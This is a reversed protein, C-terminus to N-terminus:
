CDLKKKYQFDLLELYLDMLNVVKGYILHVSIVQELRVLVKKNISKKAQVQYQGKLYLRM